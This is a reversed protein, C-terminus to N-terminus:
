RRRQRPEAADGVARRAAPFGHPDRPLGVRAPTGNGMDEQLGAGSYPKNWINVSAQQLLSIITDNQEEITVLQKLAWIIAIFGFFLLFIVFAVAGILFNIPNM